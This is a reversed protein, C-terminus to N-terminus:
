NSQLYLKQSEKLQDCLLKVMEHMGRLDNKFKEAQKKYAASDPFHKLLEEKAPSSSSRLKEVLEAFEKLTSESIEKASPFAVAGSAGNPSTKLSHLLSRAVFTEEKPYEIECNPVSVFDFLTGNRGSAMLASYKIGSNESDDEIVIELHLASDAANVPSSKIVEKSFVDHIFSSTISFNENRQVSGKLAISYWGL